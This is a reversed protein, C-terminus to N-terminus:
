LAPIFLLRLNGAELVDEFLLKREKAPEENVLVKGELPKLVVGEKGAVLELHRPELGTYGRLDLVSGSARGLRTRRMSLVYEKGRLPGTLVKLVGFARSAEFLSYFLGIAGGMLLLGGGRGWFGGQGLFELLAGGALGGAAGGPIGILIRRGSRSRIGEVAGVATGLLVWGLTRSLPIVLELATRRSFSGAALIGTLLGQILVTVLIGALIGLLAGSLGGQLAKKRDSVLIGEATGFAFGFFLGILMGEGLALFLYGGLAEGARLLAELGGWAALAGALGLLIMLIKRIFTTM